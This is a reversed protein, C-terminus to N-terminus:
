TFVIIIYVNFWIKVKYASQLEGKKSLVGDMNSKMWIAVSSYSLSAM